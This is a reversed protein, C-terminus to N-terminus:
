MIELSPVFNPFMRKFSMQKEPKIAVKKESHLFGDLRQKTKM